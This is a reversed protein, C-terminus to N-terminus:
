LEYPETAPNLDLAIWPLIMLIIGSNGFIPKPLIRPRNWYNGDWINTYISFLDGVFYAERDTNKILNNNLIKTNASHEIRVGILNQSLM